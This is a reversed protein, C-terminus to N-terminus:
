HARENQQMAPQADCEAQQERHPERGTDDHMKHRKGRQRFRLSEGPQRRDSEGTDFLTRGFGPRCAAHRIGRADPQHLPAIARDVQDRVAFASGRQAGRVQRICCHMRLVQRQRNGTVVGATAAPAAGRGFEGGQIEVILPRHRGAKVAITREVPDCQIVPGAGLEIHGRDGTFYRENRRMAHARPVIDAADRVPNIRPHQAAMRRCPAPQQPPEREKCQDTSARAGCDAHQAETAVSRAQRRRIAAPLSPVM